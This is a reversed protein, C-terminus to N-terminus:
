VNMLEPLNRGIEPLLKKLRKYETSRLCIGMKQTGDPHRRAELISACGRMRQRRRRFLICKGQSVKQKRFSRRCVSDTRNFEEMHRREKDTERSDMGQYQSGKESM